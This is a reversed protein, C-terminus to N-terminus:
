LLFTLRNKVLPFCYCVRTLNANEVRILPCQLTDNLCTSFTECLCLQTRYNNVQNSYPRSYLYLVRVLYGDLYRDKRSTM